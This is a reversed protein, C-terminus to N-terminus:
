FQGIQHGMLMNRAAGALLAHQFVSLVKEPPWCEKPWSLVHSAMLPIIWHPRLCSVVHDWAEPGCVPPTCPINRIAGIIYELLDDPVSLLANPPAGALPHVAHWQRLTAPLSTTDAPQSPLESASRM